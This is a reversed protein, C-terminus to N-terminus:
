QNDGPATDNWPLNRIVQEPLRSDSRISLSCPTVTLASGAGEAHYTLESRLRDLLATESM